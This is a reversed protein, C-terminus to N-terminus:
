PSCWSFEIETAACAIQLREELVGDQYSPRVAYIPGWHVIAEDWRGANFADLGALYEIALSREELAWPDDGSRMLGQELYDVAQQLPKAAGRAGALLEAAAKPYAQYLYTDVIGGQYDPRARHLPQWSEVAQAWNKETYATAGTVYLRALRREEALDRQGPRLALALELYDIAQEVQGVDGRAGDLLQTALLRYADFLYADIEDRHFDPATRRIDTLLTIAREWDKAEVLRQAEQWMQELEIAREVQAMRQRVDLYGPSIEELQRLLDLAGARDGEAEKQLASEYLNRLSEQEALVRFAEEVEQSGPLAGALEQLVERAGSLDAAGLRRDAEEWLGAIYLEQEHMEINPRVWQDYALAFGAAATLCGAILVLFVLLTRLVAGPQRHRVPISDAVSFTSRLAARVELDRITEEEPYLEALKKLNDAAEADQGEALQREVDLFLPHERFPVRPEADEVVEEMVIEDAQDNEM